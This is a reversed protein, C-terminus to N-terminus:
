ILCPEHVFNLVSRFFTLVSNCIVFVLMSCIFKLSNLVQYCWNYSYPWTWVAFFFNLCLNLQNSDLILLILPIHHDFDQNPLWQRCASNSEVMPLWSQHIHFAGVVFWKSAKERINPRVQHLPSFLKELCKNPFILHFCIFKRVSLILSPM